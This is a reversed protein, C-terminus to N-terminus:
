GHVRQRDVQYVVMATSRTSVLLFFDAHMDVISIKTRDHKFYNMGKRTPKPHISLVFFFRLIKM